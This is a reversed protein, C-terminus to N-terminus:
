VGPTRTGLMQQAHDRQLPPVRGAGYGQDFFRGLRLWSVGGEVGVQRLRMEGQLPDGIRARRFRIRAIRLRALGLTERQAHRGPWHV